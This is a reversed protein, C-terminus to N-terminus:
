GQHLFRRRRVVQKSSEFGFDIPMNHPSNPTPKRIRNTQMQGTIGTVREQGGFQDDECFVKRALRGTPTITIVSVQSAHRLLPEFTFGIIASLEPRTTFSAFLEAM